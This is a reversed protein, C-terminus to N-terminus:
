SYHYVYLLTFNHVDRFEHQDTEVMRNPDHEVTPRDEDPAGNARLYELAGFDRYGLFSFTRLGVGASAM